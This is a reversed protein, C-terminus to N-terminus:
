EALENFRISKSTIGRAIRRRPHRPTEYRPDTIALHDRKLDIRLMDGPTRRIQLHGGSKDFEKNFPKAVLESLAIEVNLPAATADNADHLEVKLVADLAATTQVDLAEEQRTSHERIEVHDNDAWM